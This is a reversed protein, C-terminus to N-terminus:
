EEFMLEYYYKFRIFGLTRKYEDARVLGKQKLKWFDILPRYVFSYVAFLIVLLATDILQNVYMSLFLIVPTGTFLHYVLLKIM